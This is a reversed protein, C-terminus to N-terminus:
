EIYRWRVVEDIVYTKDEDYFNTENIWAAHAFNQELGDDFEIECWAEKDPLEGREPYHWRLRKVEAELAEYEINAIEINELFNRNCRIESMAEYFKNMM